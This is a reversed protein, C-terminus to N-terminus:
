IHRNIRTSPTKKEVHEISFSNAIKFKNYVNNNTFNQLKLNILKNYGNNM